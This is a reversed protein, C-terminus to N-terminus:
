NKDSATEVGAPLDKTPDRGEFGTSANPNVKADLERRSAFTQIAGSAVPGEGKGAIDFWAKLAAEDDGTVETVGYGGTRTPGDPAAGSAPLLTADLGNNGGLLTIERGDQRVILGAPLKCAVFM